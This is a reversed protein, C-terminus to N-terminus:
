GLLYTLRDGAYRTKSFADTARKYSLKSKENRLEADKLLDVAKEALHEANGSIFFTICGTGGDIERIMPLDSAIVPIGNALAESVANGLGELETTSYLFLDWERIVEYVENMTGKFIIKDRIGLDSSLREYTKRLQGDGILELISGPFEHLIYKFARIVTQHDKIRDMRAVMGMTPGTNHILNKIRYYNKSPIPVPNLSVRSNLKSYNPDKLLSNRVFQSCAFLCISKDSDIFKMLMGLLRSNTRNGQLPNGVHIAMKYKKKYFALIIWPLRTISWCFVGDAQYDKFHNKLKLYFSLPNKALIELQGVTAGAKQWQGTMPGEKDLVWIEHQDEPLAEIVYLCDKETGGIVANPILHLWKRM